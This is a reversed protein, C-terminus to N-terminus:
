AHCRLRVLITDGPLSALFAESGRWVPPVPPDHPCLDPDCSAHVAYTGDEVWWGDVTLVDTNMQHPWTFERVYEDRTGEYGIVPHERPHHPGLFGLYGLGLSFPHNLYAAILPQAQYAALMQDGWRDGPFAQPDDRWRDVFTALRVAPPHVASLSHWLDWSAGAAREFALNKQSFDLLSRPGGACVGPVSPRPAGDYGSDDHILRPDDEYGPAVVFGRGNSGGEIRRGDWMGRGVPNDPTDIYFPALARTLAGELDSSAEGPLCVTVWVGAMYGERAAGAVMM